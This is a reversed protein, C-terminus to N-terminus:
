FITLFSIRVKILKKQIANVNDNSQLKFKVIKIQKYSTKTM